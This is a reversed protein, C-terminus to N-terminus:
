RCYQTKNFVPKFKPPYLQNEKRAWQWQNLKDMSTNYCQKPFTDHRSHVIRKICIESKVHTTCKVMLFGLHNLYKKRCKLRCKIISNIYSIVVWNFSTILRFDLKVHGHWPWFQKLALQFQSPTCSISHCKENKFVPRCM